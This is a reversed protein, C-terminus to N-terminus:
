SQKALKSRIRSLSEPSIGLYNAIHYQPIRQSLGPFDVLFHQYREIASCKILEIEKQEKRYFLQDAMLKAFHLWTPNNQFLPLVNSIDWSWVLCPEIAEIWIESPKQLMFSTYATCFPNQTDVAFDKVFDNGEHLLYYRFIGKHIFLLNRCVEGEKVFLEGKQFALEKSKLTFPKILEQPMEPVIKKIYFQFKETHM